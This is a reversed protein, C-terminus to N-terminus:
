DAGKGKQCIGVLGSTEILAQRVFEDDFGIAKLDIEDEEELEALIAALNASDWEALESTRNDALAFAAAKADSVDVVIAAIHTWGLGRAAILTGNGAIVTKRNVVVPKMQGFQQLSGKIAGVNADPHHRANRYDLTLSSCEVALHRISESIHELSAVPKQVRAAITKPDAKPGGAQVLKDAIARLSLGEERWAILQPVFRDPIDCVAM